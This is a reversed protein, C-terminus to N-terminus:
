TEQEVFSNKEDDAWLCFFYLCCLGNFFPNEICKIFSNQGKMDIAEFGFDNPKRYLSSLIM